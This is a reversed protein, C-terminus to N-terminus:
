SSHISIAHSLSLLLETTSTQIRTVPCDKILTVLGDCQTPVITTASMMATDACETQGETQGDLRLAWATLIM